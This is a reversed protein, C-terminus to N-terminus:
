LQLIANRKKNEKDFKKLDLSFILMKGDELGALLFYEKGIMNLSLVPSHAKLKEVTQLDHLNRIIVFGDKGGTVIHKCNSTIYIDNLREHTEVKALLRANISYLYLYFNHSYVLIHGSPAIKVISVPSLKAIKQDTSEEFPLAISRIYNGKRLSHIICSGDRSGSVVVDLDKSLSVSTVEDNHGYLLHRPSEEIKYNNGKVKLMWIAVTTDRSGTAVVQGDIAICTIIDKHKKIIQVPQRSNDIASCRFSEDWHGCSLLLKGDTTAAFCQSVLIGSAFPVGLPRRNSLYPDIELSFSCEWNEPLELLDSAAPIEKGVFPDMSELAESEFNKPASLLSDVLTLETFASTKRLIEKPMDEKKSTTSSLPSTSRSAFSSPPSNASFEKPSNNSDFNSSAIWKHSSPVREQSVTVIKDPMGVYLYSPLLKKPVSIHSLPTHSYIQKSHARWLSPLSFFNDPLLPHRPARRPHPQKLLQSPTQGFHDIQTELAKRQKPDEIADLDVAGEYTLYYFVNCAEVAASGKQKHGFVLDIWENLNESVFCSELAARNLRVFEEASNAWAPLEVDGMREGTQKVGLDFGNENRLFEPLYFFEPVLEKVDASASLVNVWTQSISHFMRDAHDWKGGQLDLFHSTFPEM